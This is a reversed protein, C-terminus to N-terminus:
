EQWGEVSVTGEREPSPGELTVHEGDFHVNLMMANPSAIENYYLVFTQADTWAGRLGQTFERSGEWAQSFRYQGDLGVFGQRDHMDGYYTLSLSAEATQDFDLRLSALRYPNDDFLYTHGSIVQAMDPLPLVPQAALPQAVEDLAAQLDAVGAPNDPLPNTKGIAAVLYDDVDDLEFGGGTTVLVLDMAPFVLVLQGGRGDAKFTPDDGPRAIWWGYGYDAGYNPGTSIQLKSSAEVWERSVIQQGDWQGGHLWLLGLKATDHPHLYLEGHGNPTGQPDTSWVVDHIGLPEFLNARAFELTNMGTAKELIASLLHMGPSCYAFTTSPEAVMPLDLTFQVWDPSAHMDRATPEEPHHICEWGATNSTLHRVTIREKRADRNAIERDPFFSLIPADLDLKGQDAAIAILTTMFSKTVSAQDHVTSGDYPYFYADLIVEGAHVVMLSHIKTGDRRMARLGEAMIASDFGHSEPAATRWGNTPWYDPAPVSPTSPRLAQWVFVALAVALIVLAVIMWRVSASPLVFGRNLHLRKNM